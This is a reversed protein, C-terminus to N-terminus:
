QKTVKIYDSYAKDWLETDCPLFEYLEESRAIIERAKEISEVAGVSMLQVAINGFSTAEIPGACVRRNIACATLQSLFRDKTGGGVMYLTAFSKKTCAELEEISQRYKLALSEYICRMVEGDNQPVYQKTKECYAKIRGPIDGAPTFEPADPNIFCRFPQAKKAMEELEMFSYEKGERKWQRRSEQILWLGIINKLFSTKRGYGTENSVNLRASEENIVPNDLETGLLSWTGCSLFAFDKEKAPVSVMACQTDHGCAAIIKMPEIDLEDCIEQSLTGIVTGSNVIEPFLHREIGLYNICEDSWEKCEAEFLQTTSAISMEAVKKGGLFYAFLDPMMLLKDARKLLEKRKKLLSLLQFATNIEMIQVGTLQYLREPSIFEGSAAVMGNTRSDRYHVPNELLKGKKDILGFDVGWTDIALSDIRGYEKSKILSQKIEHFLRLFDWYMTGGLNVPDNSFRHIETLKIKDGDYEGIIARGSSAGFDIALVRNM